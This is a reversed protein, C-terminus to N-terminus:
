KMYNIIPINDELLAKFDVCGKIKMTTKSKFQMVILKYTTHM